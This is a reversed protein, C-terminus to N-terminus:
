IICSVLRRFLNLSIVTFAHCRIELQLRVRFTFVIRILLIKDDILLLFIRPRFWLNVITSTQVFNFGIEPIRQPLFM